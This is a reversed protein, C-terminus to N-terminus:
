RHGVKGYDTSLILTVHELDLIEWQERIFDLLATPIVTVNTV